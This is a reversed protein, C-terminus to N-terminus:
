RQPLSTPKGTRSGHADADEIVIMAEVSRSRGSIEAAEELPRKVGIRFKPKGPHGMLSGLEELWVKEVAVLIGDDIEFVGGVLPQGPPEIMVLASEQRLLVGLM